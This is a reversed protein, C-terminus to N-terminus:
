EGVSVWRCEGAQVCLWVLGCLGMWVELQM